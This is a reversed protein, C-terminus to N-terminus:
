YHTAQVERPAHGGENNCPFTGALLLVGKYEGQPFLRYVCRWLQDVPFTVAFNGVYLWPNTLVAFRRSSADLLADYRAVAYDFTSLVVVVKNPLLDIESRGEQTCPWGALGCLTNGPKRICNYCTLIIGNQSNFM